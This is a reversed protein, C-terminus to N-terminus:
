LQERPLKLRGWLKYEMTIDELHTDEALDEEDEFLIWVGVSGMVM